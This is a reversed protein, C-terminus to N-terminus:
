AACGQTRKLEAQKQIERLIKKNEIRNRRDSERKQAAIAAENDVFLKPKQGIAYASLVDAVKDGRFIWDGHRRHIQIEVDDVFAVVNGHDTLKVRVTLTRGDVTYIEGEKWYLSNWAGTYEPFTHSAVEPSLFPMAIQPGNM